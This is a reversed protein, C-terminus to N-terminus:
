KTESVSIDAAALAQSIHTATMREAEVQELELVMMVGASPVNDNNSSAPADTDNAGFRDVKRYNYMSLSGTHFDNEMAASPNFYLPPAVFEHLTRTASPSMFDVANSAMTFAQYGYVPVDSDYM